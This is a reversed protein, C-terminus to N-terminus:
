LQINEARIIVLKIKSELIFCESKQNWYLCESELSKIGSHHTPVAKKLTM